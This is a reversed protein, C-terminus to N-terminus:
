SAKHKRIKGTSTIAVREGCGECTATNGYAYGTRHPLDRNLYAGSGKCSTDAHAKDWEAALEPLTPRRDTPAEPVCKTCVMSGAEAIMDATSRGSYAPLWGINTTPRFSSCYESTHLHEVIFFRTWGGRAVYEAEFPAREELIAEREALLADRRTERDAIIDASYFRRLKATLGSNAERIRPLLANARGNIAAIAADIEVPSMAGIGNNANEIAATIEAVLAEADRITYENGRVTITKNKM